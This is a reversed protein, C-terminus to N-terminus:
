LGCHQQAMKLVHAKHETGLVLYHHKHMVESVPDFM